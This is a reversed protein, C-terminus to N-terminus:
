KKRIIIRRVKSYDERLRGRFEDCVIQGRSPSAHTVKPTGHTPDRLFAGVHGHIRRREDKFTWWIMDLEEVQDIDIDEGTWGGRGEAMDQSTVRQMMGVGAWKYVLYKYRSCDVGEGVPADPKIRSDSRYHPSMLIMSRYTVRLRAKEHETLSLAREPTAFWTGSWLLLLALLSRV